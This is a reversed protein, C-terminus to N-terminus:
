VNKKTGHKGEFQKIYVRASKLMKFNSITRSYNLKYFVEVDHIDTPLYVGHANSCIILGDQRAESLVKQFTRLTTGYLKCLINSPVQNKQGVPLISILSSYKEKIREQYEAENADELPVIFLNSGNDKNDQYVQSEQLGITGHMIEKKKDEDNILFHKKLM